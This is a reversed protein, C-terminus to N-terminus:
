YMSLPLLKGEVMRRKIYENEQSTQLSVADMCRMRCWNRVGLWDEEQKNTIPDRWSFFYGKGHFREHIAGKFYISIKFCLKKLIKVSVVLSKLTEVTGSVQHKQTFKLM